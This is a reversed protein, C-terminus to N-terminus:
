LMAPLASTTARFNQKCFLKWFVSGSWGGNKNFCSLRRAAQFVAFHMSSTIFVLVRYISSLNGNPLKWWFFPVVKEPIRNKGSIKWHFFGFFWTGNVVRGSNGSNKPLHFVSSKNFHNGLLLVWWLNGIFSPININCSLSINFVYYFSPPPPLNVMSTKVGRNKCIRNNLHSKTIETRLLYARNNELVSNSKRQNNIWRRGLFFHSWIRQM